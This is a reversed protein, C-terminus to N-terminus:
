NIHHDARMILWTPQSRDPKHVSLNLLSPTPTQWVSVCCPTEDNRAWLIILLNRSAPSIAACLPCPWFGIIFPRPRQFFCFFFIWVCNEAPFRQMPKSLSRFVVALLCVEDWFAFQFKPMCLFVLVHVHVVLFDQQRRQTPAWKPYVRTLHFVTPITVM